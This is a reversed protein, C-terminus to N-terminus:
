RKKSSIPSQFLPVFCAYRLFLSPLNQYRCVCQITEFLHSFGFYFLLVNKVLRRGTAMAFSSKLYNRQFLVSLLNKNM